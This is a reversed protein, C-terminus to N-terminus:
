TPHKMGASRRGEAGPEEALAFYATPTIMIPAMFGLGM